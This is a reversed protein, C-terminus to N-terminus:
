KSEMKAVIARALWVAFAEDTNSGKKVIRDFDVREKKIDVGLKEAVAETMQRNSNM